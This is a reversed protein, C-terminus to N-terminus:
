ITQVPNTKGKNKKNMRLTMWIIKSLKLLGM